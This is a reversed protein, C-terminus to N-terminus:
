EEFLLLFILKNVPFHLSHPTKLSCNRLSYSHKFKFDQDGESSHGATESVHQTPSASYWACLVLRALVFVNPSAMVTCSNGRNYSAINSKLM